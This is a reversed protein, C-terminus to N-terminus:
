LDGLATRPIHEKASASPAPAAKAACRWAFPGTRWHHRHASIVGISRLTEPGFLGIVIFVLPSKEKEAFAFKAKRTSEKKELACV